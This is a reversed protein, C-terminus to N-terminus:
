WLLPGSGCVMVVHVLQATCCGSPSHSSAVRQARAATGIVPMVSRRQVVTLAPQAGAKTTFTEETCTLGALYVLLAKPAPPLYLAFRMPLGIEASDHRHIRQTGGFSRHENLTQM